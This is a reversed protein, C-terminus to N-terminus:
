AVDRVTVGDVAPAPTLNELEKRLEEQRKADIPFKWLILIVGLGSLAPLAGMMWRDREILAM